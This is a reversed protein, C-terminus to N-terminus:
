HGFGFAAGGTMRLTSGFSRADLVCTRHKALVGVMVFGGNSIEFKINSIQKTRSAQYKIM